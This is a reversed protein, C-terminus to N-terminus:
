GNVVPLNAAKWETLGGRLKYVATFGEAKLRKTVGTATHGMNCVVIVPKDKHSNLESIHADLSTAAINTSNAIHGKKFDGSDRIDLVLGDERNVMNSLEQPSVAKGAKSSEYQFFVLIMTVLAAALIWQETLFELFLEM